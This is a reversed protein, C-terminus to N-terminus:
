LVSTDATDFQNGPFMTASAITNLIWTRGNQFQM